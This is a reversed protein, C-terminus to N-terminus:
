IYEQELKYQHSRKQLIGLNKSRLPLKMLTIKLPPRLPFPHKERGISKSGRFSVFYFDGAQYAPDNKDLKIVLQQTNPALQKNAIVTGNTKFLTIFKALLYYGIIIYTYADFTTIFSTMESFDDILHVHLWILLILLLNLRHIWASVQHSCIISLKLKIQRLLKFRDVLWGSMFVIAYIIGIIALYWAIDGTTEVLHDASPSLFKHATAAVLAAVGLSAHLFYMSPSALISKLGDQVLQSSFSLWGGFMPWYGWMMLLFIKM